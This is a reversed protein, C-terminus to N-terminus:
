NSQVSPSTEKAPSTSSSSAPQRVWTAVVVGSLILVVGAGHFPEVREGLFLVALLVGYIPLLYMFVGTVAAGFRRLGFQYGGFAILSSFVVIGAIGTWARPTTPMPAGAWWEAAAFPLLLLAGAGAVLGFLAAAGFGSVREDRFLISYGAWAIACALILADGTNFDLGLLRAPEGRFVITAVGALAVLCGVLKRPALPVGRLREILLIFVPSTTYILVANTASTWALALYVVAGCVGM